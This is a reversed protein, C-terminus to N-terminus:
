SENKNIREQIKRKVKHASIIRLSNLGKEMLGGNIVIYVNMDYIYNLKFWLKFKLEDSNKASQKEFKYLGKQSIILKIIQSYNIKRRKDQIRRFAHKTTKIESLDLKSLRDKLENLIMSNM